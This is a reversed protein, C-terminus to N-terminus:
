VLETKLIKGTEGRPLNEVIHVEEPIKFDILSNRCHNLVQKRVADPNGSSDVAVFAIPVEGYIEHDKGIVGVERVTELQNITGEIDGPFINQGGRIIINKLRDSIYYEGAEDYYGIDGTCFWTGEFAEKTAEQNNFYEKFLSPGRIRIEGFEGPPLPERTDEDVVQLESYPTPVGASGYDRDTPEAHTTGAVESLGYIEMVNVDFADEFQQTAEKSLFSGSVVFTELPTSEHLTEGEVLISLISPVGSTVQGGYENVDNWFESASFGNRLLVTGGDYLTGFTTIFGDINYLPLMTYFTDYGLPMEGAHLRLLFSHHSHAVAKPDGTTGSTFMLFATDVPSVNPSFDNSSNQKYNEPTLLPIDTDRLSEEVAEVSSTDAIIASCDSEDLIYALEDGRYEYNVPVAVAGIKYIGCIAVILDISNPFVLTIHDGSGIGRDSLTAAVNTARRELQEYTIGEGTEARKIFTQDANSAVQGSIMEDITNYKM